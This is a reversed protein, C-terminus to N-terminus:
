LIVPIKEDIEMTDKTVLCDLALIHVGSDAAKRLTDGFARHTRDNPRFCHVGKMQIVFIIYADYGEEVCHILEEIHKIGRETPADPFWAPGDEELTVGKVEVFAERTGAMLEGGRVFFDFRSNGYKKEARIEEIYPFIGGRKLWEGVAKNPAQSDMNIMLNGKSVGILSYKTKRKPDNHQQLYVRAGPILLERCRGTNKVHAEEEQGGVLVIAIFRNPRKLFTGSIIHDYHMNRDGKGGRIIVESTESTLSFTKEFLLFPLRLVM